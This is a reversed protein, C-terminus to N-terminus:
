DVKTESVSKKMDDWLQMVNTYLKKAQAAQEPVALAEAYKELADALERGAAAARNSERIADEILKQKDPKSRESFLKHEKIGWPTLHVFGPTPSDVIWGQHSMYEFIDHKAGVLGEQKIIELMNLIKDSQEGKAEYLKALVRHYVDVKM